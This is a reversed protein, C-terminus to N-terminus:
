TCTHACFVDRRVESSGQELLAYDDHTRGRGQQGILREAGVLLIGQQDSVIGGGTGRMVDISLM